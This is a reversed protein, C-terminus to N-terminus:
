ITRKGQHTFSLAKIAPEGVDHEPYFRGRTGPHYGPFPYGIGPTAVLLPEVLGAFNLKFHHGSKVVVFDQAGIAIGQSEFAQPDLSYAPRSTVLLVLGNELDLVATEGMDSREGGHFPGAMTFVGNSLNRVRARITMPEFMSTMTGGVELTIPVGIGAAKAKAVATADTIPIAGRLGPRKLAAQLIYVGDGPAGATVRDGMDGLAVPLAKTPHAALELAQDITLLDDRFEERRRWFEGAIKEAIQAAAPLPGDSLVVVSQGMDVDDMLRMVNYLSVDRIQPHKAALSRALAHLEQLPGANTEANGMLIMPVRALTSVPHLQGSLLEDLLEVVREGCEVTDSHPNEKCAIVIQASSLMKPTMHAHLDLGVGIPIDPGVAERLAALLDGDADPIAGTGMAGHLDLAIADFNRRKAREVFAARIAAYYDDDVLASPPAAIDVAGIMEYGLAKAKKYIGGLTSSSGSAEQLVAADRHENFWSGDTRFSPLFNSEHYMRGILLRRKSVTV